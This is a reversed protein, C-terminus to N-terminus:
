RFLGKVAGWSQNETATGTNITYCLDPCTAPDFLNYATQTGIVCFVGYPNNIDTLSSICAGFNPALQLARTSVTAIRNTGHLNAFGFGALGLADPHSFNDDPFHTGGALRNSVTFQGTANSFFPRLIMWAQFNTWTFSNSDQYVDFTANTNIEVVGNPGPLGDGNTDFWQSALGQASATLPCALVLAIISIGLSHRM